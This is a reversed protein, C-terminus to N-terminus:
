LRYDATFFASNLMPLHYPNLLVWVGHLCGVAREVKNANRNLWDSGVLTAGTAHKSSKHFLARGRIVYLQRLSGDINEWM